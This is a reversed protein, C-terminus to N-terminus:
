RDQLVKKIEYALDESLLIASQANLHSGDYCVYRSNKNELFIWHGGNMRINEIMDNENIGSMENELLDMDEFTPPRFVFVLVGEKTWEAITSCMDNIKSNSVKNSEWFKRYSDLSKEPNQKNSSSAVWGDDNFVEKIIEDNPKSNVSFVESPKLPSLLKSIFFNVYLRDFIQSKTLKLLEDLHSNDHDTISAPTLGILIIKVGSTQNLRKNAESFIEKNLIGSSFGFNLIKLNPTIKNIANPSVGRYVRSDGLILMNYKKKSHVKYTWFRDYEVKNIAGITNPKIFSIIIILPICIASVVITRNKLAKYTM